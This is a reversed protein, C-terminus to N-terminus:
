RLPIEARPTLLAWSVAALVANIAASVLALVMWPLLVGDGASLALVAGFFAPAVLGSALGWATLRFLSLRPKGGGRGMFAIIAAFALGSIFGWIAPTPFFIVIEWAPRRVDFARQYEYWRWYAWPSLLLSWGAAWLSGLTLGARVRRFPPM